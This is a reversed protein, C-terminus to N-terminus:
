RGMMKFSLVPKRGAAVEDVRKVSANHPANRTTGPDENVIERMVDAFRDLTEKTESETPEI